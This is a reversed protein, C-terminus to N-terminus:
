RPRVFRGEQCDTLQVSISNLPALNWVGLWCHSVGPVMLHLSAIVIVSGSLSPDVHPQDVGVM